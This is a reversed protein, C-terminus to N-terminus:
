LKPINQRDRDTSLRSMPLEHKCMRYIKLFYPDHEYMFTMPDLDLDCRFFTSLWGTNGCCFAAHWCLDADRCHSFKTALLQADMVCLATFHEQLIRHEGVDLQIAHGGDKNRSRFYSGTVLNM